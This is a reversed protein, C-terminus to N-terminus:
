CFTDDDSLSEFCHLTIPPEGEEINGAILGLMEGWESPSLDLELSSAQGSNSESVPGAIEPSPTKRSSTEIIRWEVDDRPQSCWDDSFLTKKCHKTKRVKKRPEDPDNSEDRRSTSPTATPTKLLNLDFDQVIAKSNPTLLLDHSTGTVPDEIDGRDHFELPYFGGCSSCTGTEYLTLDQSHGPCFQNLPFDNPTKDLKWTAHFAALSIEFRASCVALWEAIEKPNIEGFTTELRKMFNFQVVRERLPTEHVHTICNGGTAQYINNNTSIIVPTQPLLHSEKHKRDIRFETGGLICKAQEVWDTHMLCEEWWVVLKAACDNFIFNRNQHNVCGYLKVANVIAKAMNTKGTSAPGFFNVTNQKGAKRSLVCCLWHGAQWPNYGQKLLLQWCKNTYLTDGHTALEKFDYRVHLYSLANHAQTIRVHLMNLVSEILKSGGPMSELMLVLDACGGVLDEYTLWLNDECRKLCDLILSEKKSMRANVHPQAGGLGMTGTLKWSATNVKPLDGFVDGKFIPEEKVLVKDRLLNWWERRKIPPVYKGNILTCAYTKSSIPFFAQLPTAKEPEVFSTFKLNKCLLYNCIFERPDIRCAYMAGNRSKYQLVTCLDGANGPECKKQAEKLATILSSAFSPNSINGSTLNSSLIAILNDAFKQGLIYATSKASFRSLGDGALVMHVHINEAGIECQSYISAIPPRKGQKTCFLHFAAMHAAYCVETGFCRLPGFRELFDAQAGPSEPGPMAAFLLPDDLIDAHAYCLAKQLHAEYNQDKPLPLRLVYTYAPDAFQIFDDISALDFEAM